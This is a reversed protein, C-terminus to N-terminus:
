RQEVVIRGADESEIAGLERYLAFFDEIFRSESHNTEVLQRGRGRLEERRKIDGSLRMIAQGLATASRRPICEVAGALVVDAMGGNATAITPIGNSLAELVGVSVGEYYSPQLFIDARCMLDSVTASSVLGHLVIRGPWRDRLREAKHMLPGIGAVHLVFTNGRRWLMEMAMLTEQFGKQSSLQTAFLLTDVNERLQPLPKPDLSVPVRILRTETLRGPFLRCYDRFSASDCFSVRSPPLLGLALAHFISLLLGGRVFSNRCDFLTPTGRRKLAYLFPISSASQSYVLSFNAFLARKRWLRFSWMLKGLYGRKRYRGGIRVVDASTSPTRTFIRHKLGRKELGRILLAMNKVGGIGSGAHPTFNDVIYAIM